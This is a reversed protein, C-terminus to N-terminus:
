SIIYNIYHHFYSCSVIGSFSFFSRHIAQLFSIQFIHCRLLIQYDSFPSLSTGRDHRVRQSGMSQLRGPEGTRPIKWAPTSSHTAIEKELPDKWGQSRVWTERMAPLHKVTQAVLLAWQCNGFHGLTLCFFGKSLSFHNRPSRPAPHSRVRGWSRCHIDSRGLKRSQSVKVKRASWRSHFLHQIKIHLFHYGM